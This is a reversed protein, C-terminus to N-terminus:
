KDEGTILGETEVAGIVLNMNQIAAGCAGKGLNDFLSSLVIREENGFVSILLADSGAMESASTFGNRECAESYRIVPGTYTRRYIDRIEDPSASIERASLTVVTQMGQPYDAVVPCFAPETNLGCIVKMEKLHKHHQTLGYMRPADLLPDREEEEYQAIMKKGGGTYGTLSFCNLMTDPSLVGADTLPRILTIFGTAHCGPNAIRRANRIKDTGTLEPLGYVWDPDTRHATSTDIVTTRDSVVLRAAEEAAADPLCLFVVDAQNMLRGRVEPDHRQEYPISLIEIDKRESLRQHIRLGTTGSSGDIFIKKM